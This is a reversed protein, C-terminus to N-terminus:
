FDSGKACDAALPGAHHHRLLRPLVVPGFGGSVSQDLVLSVLCFLRALGEQFLSILYSSSSTSCVPWVMRFCVSLTRPLRPSVVPGFGVSVSPDLVLSVLCFLRAFGEQFLSVLYSPSM